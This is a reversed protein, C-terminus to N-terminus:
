VLRKWFYSNKKPNMNEILLSDIEEKNREIDKYTKTEKYLMICHLLILFLVFTLLIIVGIFIYTGPLVDSTM